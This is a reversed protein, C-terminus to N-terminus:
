KGNNFLSWTSFMNGPLMSRFKAMVGAEKLEESIVIEPRQIATSFHRTNKKKSLRRWKSWKNGRVNYTMAIKNEGFGPGMNYGKLPNLKANPNIRVETHDEGDRKRDNFKYLM